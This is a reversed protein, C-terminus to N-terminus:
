FGFSRRSGNPPGKHGEPPYFNVRRLWRMVVVSYSMTMFGLAHDALSAVFIPVANANYSLPNRYRRENHMLSLHATMKDTKRFTLLM